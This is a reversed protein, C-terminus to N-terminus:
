PLARVYVQSAGGSPTPVLNNALSSFAIFGGDGNVSPEDSAGDGATGGSDKSVLSTTGNSGALRDHSYIQQGSVAPAPDLLNTSLSVFAIVQGNASISPLSSAGNGQIPTGNNDHSVLSTTANARDHLYIQQGSVGVVLNTALSTFAVFQGDASVSPSSSGGNGPNAANDKSVLSTTGNAGTLRDHVYIQQNGGAVGLNTASSAFVIFQGDGSIAPTNSDGNGPVPTSSNDKSVLTTAGTMRDRLYIQQGSVGAVLNAANSVFAIFRGDASISPAGNVTGDSVAGSSSRSVLTTQGTQRDRLYVQQGTGGPVLDTSFSVFAVFRGDASISPVSSTGNGPDIAPGSGRSILEIQNTRRNHVYVQAGSVGAVLNTAQSAFAVLSGDGSISPASSAGNGAAGSGDVSIRDTRTYVIFLVSGTASRGESDVVRFTATSSGATTPTGTVTGTAADLSLGAPLSGGFLSWTLPPTGGNAELTVSYASGVIGFPTETTTIV